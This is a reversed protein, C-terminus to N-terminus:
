VQPLTVPIYSYRIWSGGMLTILEISINLLNHSKEGFSVKIFMINEGLLLRICHRLVTEFRRWDNGPWCVDWLDFLFLLRDRHVPTMETIQM